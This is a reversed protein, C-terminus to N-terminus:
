RAPIFPLPPQGNQDTFHCRLEDLNLLHARSPLGARGKPTQGAELKLGAETLWGAAAEEAGEKIEKESDAKSGSLPAFEQVTPGAEHFSPMSVCNTAVVKDM